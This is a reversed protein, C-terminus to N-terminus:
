MDLSRWDKHIIQTKIFLPLWLSIALLIIGNFIHLFNQLKSKFAQSTYILILINLFWICAWQSKPNSNMFIIFFAFIFRYLIFYGYFLINKFNDTNFELFLLWHREHKDPFKIINEYYILPYAFWYVIMFFIVLTLLFTVVYSSINFINNFNGYIINIWILVWLNLMLEMIFRSIGEYRLDYDKKKIFNAFKNVKNALLKYLVWITFVFLAFIFIGIIKDMFNIIISISSYSSNEFTSPLSLEVFSFMSKAKNRIFEFAPNDFNSFKMYLFVTLLESTFNLNILTFFFMVQLSNALSWMLEISGGTLFSVGLSLVMMIVFMYSAGSGGGEVSQSTPLAPVVFTFIQTSLLSIGFESKIQQVNLIQFVVKENIGGLLVPFSTFSIRLKDDDFQASWSVSYPSNSGFIDVAVDFDSLITKGM